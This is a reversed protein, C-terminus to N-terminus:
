NYRTKWTNHYKRYTIDRKEAIPSTDCINGKDSENIPKDIFIFMFVFM